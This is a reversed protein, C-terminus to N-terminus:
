YESALYSLRNSQFVRDCASFEVVSCLLLLIGCAEVLFISSNNQQHKALLKPCSIVVAAVTAGDFDALINNQKSSILLVESNIGIDHLAYIFEPPKLLGPPVPSLFSKDNCQIV